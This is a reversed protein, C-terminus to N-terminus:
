VKSCLGAVGRVIWFRPPQTTPLALNFIYATTGRTPQTYVPCEYMKHMNALPTNQAHVHVVPLETFLVKPQPNSLVGKEMDWGAGDLFIGYVYVGRAPSETLGEKYATQVDTRLVVTDLSWKFQRTMEQKVSTLFGQPNFFGTLWYAKPRGNEIWDHLQRVRKIVNAYWYGLTPSPWSLRAWTAPVLADFLSNLTGQLTENMIITGAIAQELDNLSTKIVSLVRQHCDVEQLLFVNLPKGRGGQKRIQDIVHYRDFSKPLKSLLDKAIDLVVEERTRGTGTGSEKPQIQLITGLVERSQKARYTLEANPHMGFIEPTDLLPLADIWEQTEELVKLPPFGYNKHFEFEPEFIASDLWSESYADMLRRDFDDTVRGGYHVEGIMYRLTSWSIPKRVDAQYLYKQLFVISAQLDSQNFEYPVTWGLPGFKRREQIVTYLFTITYLLPLYQPREVVELMDQTIWRYSRTLGARVGTPPDNTLKVSM